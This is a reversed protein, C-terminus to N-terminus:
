FKMVGLENVTSPQGAEVGKGVCVFVCVCVCVCM